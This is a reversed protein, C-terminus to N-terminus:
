PAPRLGAVRAGLRVRQRGQRCRPVAGPSRGARLGDGPEARGAGVLDHRRRHVRPVPLGGHRRRRHRRLRDRRHHARRAFWADSGGSVSPATPATSTSGGPRRAPSPAPAASRSPSRTCAPSSRGTRSRPAAPAGATATSSAGPARSRGPGSGRSPPRPRVRSPPPSRRHDRRQDRDRRRRRRVPARCGGDACCACAAPRAPLLCSAPPFPRRYACAVEPPDNSRQNSHEGPGPVDAAGSRPIRRSPSSWGTRSLRDALGLAAPQAPRRVRLLLHAALPRADARRRRGPRAAVIGDAIAKVHSDSNGELHRYGADRPVLRRLVDLVDEAVAPDYGENITVGATTHPVHLLVAAPAPDLRAVAEAVLDTVDVLQERGSTRIEIREM